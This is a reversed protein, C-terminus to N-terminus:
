TGEETWARLLDTVTGGTATINSTTKYRIIVIGSGGTGGNYNAVDTEM